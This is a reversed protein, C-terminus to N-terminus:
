LGLRGLLDANTAVLSDVAPSNLSAFDVSDFTTLGTGRELLLKWCGPRRM